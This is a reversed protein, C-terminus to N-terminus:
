VRSLAEHIPTPAGAGIGSARRRQGMGGEEAETWVDERLDYTLMLATTYVSATVADPQALRALCVNILGSTPTRRM